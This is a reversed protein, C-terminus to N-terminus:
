KKWKEVAKEVGKKGFLWMTVTQLLSEFAPDLVLKPFEKGSFFEVYPVVIMNNLMIFAFLWYLCPIAGKEFMVKIAPQKTRLIEKEIEATMRDREAKDGIFKGAVGSIAEGIAKTDVLAM